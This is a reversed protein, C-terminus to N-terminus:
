KNGGNNAEAANKEAVAIDTPVYKVYKENLIKLTSNMGQLKNITENNDGIAKYLKKIDYFLSDYPNNPDILDKASFCLNLNEEFEAKRFDGKLFNDLKVTNMRFQDVKDKKNAYYGKITDFKEQTIGPIKFLYYFPILACLVCIVYLVIFRTLIINREDKDLNAM